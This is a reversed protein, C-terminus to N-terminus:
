GRSGCCRGARSAADDQDFARLPEEAGEGFVEGFRGLLGEALHADARRARRVTVAMVSFLTVTLNGSWSSRMGVWVTMQAAPTRALLSPLTRASRVPAGNLLATLDDDLGIAGELRM